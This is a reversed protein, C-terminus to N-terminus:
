SLCSHSCNSDCRCGVMGSFEQSLKEWTRFMGAMWRGRCRNTSNWVLATWNRRRYSYPINNQTQNTNASGSSLETLQEIKASIEGTAHIVLATIKDSSEEVLSNTHFYITHKNWLTWSCCRWDPHSCAFAGSYDASCSTVFWEVLELIRSKGTYEPYRTYVLRVIGRYGLQDWTSSKRELLIRLEEPIKTM